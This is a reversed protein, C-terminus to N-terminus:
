RVALAARNLAIEKLSDNMFDERDILRFLFARQVMEFDNSAFVTEMIESKIVLFEQNSIGLEKEIEAPHLGSIYSKLFHLQKNSLEIDNFISIDKDLDKEFFKGIYTKPEKKKDKM